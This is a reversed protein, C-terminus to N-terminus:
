RSRAALMHVWDPNAPKESVRFCIATEFVSIRQERHDIERNDFFLSNRALTSHNNVKEAPSQATSLGRRAGARRAASRKAWFSKGKQRPKSGGSMPAGGGAGHGSPPRDPQIAGAYANDRPGLLQPM